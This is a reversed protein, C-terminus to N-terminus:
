GTPAHIGDHNIDAAFQEKLVSISEQVSANNRFSGIKKFTFKEKEFAFAINQLNGLLIWFRHAKKEYEVCHKMYIEVIEERTAKVGIEKGGNIKIRLMSCLDNMFFNNADHVFVMMLQHIKYCINDGILQELLYNRTPVMTVKDLDQFGTDYLRTPMDAGLDRFTKLVLLSHTFNYQFINLATEVHHILVDLGDELYRQRVLEYEKQRFYVWLGSLTTFIVVLLASALTALQILIELM